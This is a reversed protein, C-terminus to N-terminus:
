LARLEVGSQSRYVVVSEYLVALLNRDQTACLVCCPSFGSRGCPVRSSLRWVMLFVCTLVRLFEVGLAGCHMGSLWMESM